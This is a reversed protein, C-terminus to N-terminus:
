VLPLDPIILRNFVVSPINLPSTSAIAWGALPILITLVLLLRHAATAAVTEWPPSGPVPGPRVNALSWGARLLALLLVLFGFSKHWQYLDFQQRPYDASLQTLYGLAIQGIFLVAVAWHFIITVLGYTGPTNRWMVTM